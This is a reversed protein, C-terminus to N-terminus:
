QPLTLRPPEAAHKGPPTIRCSRRSESPNSLVLSRTISPIFNSCSRPMVMALLYVRTLHCARHPGLADIMIRDVPRLHVIIPMDEVDDVCRTM